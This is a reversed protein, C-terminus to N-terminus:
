GAASPAPDALMPLGMTFLSGVNERSQAEIFGRHAECIAKAVFLGQGLGPPASERQGRYFREFIHPLEASPIGIGNDSVSILAYPKGQRGEVRAAVAVYGRERNYAVGNRILHALAWQLRSADGQVRAGSLARTMVLLDIGRSKVEASIGNVVAWIAAEVAVPERQLAFDGAAVRAIDLLELGLRDLADVNGLLKELLRQNVAADEPQGSLLETALRIVSAPKELQTAIQSVFGDKLRAALADYTIDRLIFVSGIRKQNEDGIAILQGRLIRDNLPIEGTEALPSLEAAAEEVDRYREFLAGLDSEWFARKGGLMAEAARNMMTIKGSAEQVIIGEELSGLVATLQELQSSGRSHANQLRNFQKQLREQASAQEQLLASQQQLDLELQQRRNLRRYLRRFLSEGATSFRHVDGLGANLAANADQRPEDM